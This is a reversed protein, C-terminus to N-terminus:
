TSASASMQQMVAKALTAADAGVPPSVSETADSSDAVGEEKKNKKGGETKKDVAGTAKEDEKNENGEFVSNSAIVSIFVVGLLGAITHKLTLFVICAVLFLKGLVNNYVIGLVSPKFIMLLVAIAVAAVSLEKQYRM